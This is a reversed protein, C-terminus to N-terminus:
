LRRDRWCKKSIAMWREWIKRSHWLSPDRNPQWNNPHLSWWWFWWCLCYPLHPMWSLWASLPASLLSWVPVFSHFARVSWRACHIRIMPIFPCSIEMRMPILISFRYNKWGPFCNKEFRGCPVRLCMWWLETRHMLHWFVSGSCVPSKESPWHWLVLILTNRDWLPFLITM